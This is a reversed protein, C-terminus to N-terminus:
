KKRGAINYEVEFHRILYTELDEFQMAVVFFQAMHKKAEQLQSDTLEKIPSKIKLDKEAIHKILTSNSLNGKTQLKLRQAISYKYSEGVYKVNNKSDYIIYVGKFAFKELPSTSDMVERLTGKEWIGIPIGFVTKKNGELDRLLDELRKKPENTEKTETM